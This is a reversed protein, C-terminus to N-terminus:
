LCARAHSRSQVSGPRTTDDRAARATSTCTAAELPSSGAVGLGHSGQCQSNDEITPALVQYFAHRLDDVRQLRADLTRSDRSDNFVLNNEYWFIYEERLGVLCLAEERECLVWGKLRQYVKPQVPSKQSPGTYDPVMVVVKFDQIRSSFIFVFNLPPRLWCALLAANLRKRANSGPAFPLRIRRRPHFAPRDLNTENDASWVRNPAPQPFLQAVPLQLCRFGNEEAVRHLKSEFNVLHVASCTIWQIVLHFFKPPTYVTDYFLEMWDRSYPFASAIDMNRVYVTSNGRKKEFVSSDTDVAIDLSGKPTSKDAGFCLRNLGTRLVEFRRLLCERVPLEEASYDRVQPRQGELTDSPESVTNFPDVGTEIQGGLMELTADFHKPHSQDEEATPMILYFIQKVGERLKWGPCRDFPDSDSHRAPYPLCPPVQEGAVINDLLNWELKSPVHFIRRSGIWTDDSAHDESGGSAAGGDRRVLCRRVMFNSYRQVLDVNRWGANGEASKSTDQMQSISLGNDMKDLTWQVGDGTRLSMSSCRLLAPTGLPSKDEVHANLVNTPFRELDETGEYCLQATPLADLRLGILDHMLHEKEGIEYCPRGPEVTYPAQARYPTRWPSSSDEMKFNKYYSRM